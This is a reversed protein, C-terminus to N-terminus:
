SNNLLVNSVKSCAPVRDTVMGGSILLLFALKKHYNIDFLSILFLKENISEDM